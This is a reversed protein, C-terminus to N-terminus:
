VKSFNFKIKLNYMIKTKFNESVKFSKEKNM